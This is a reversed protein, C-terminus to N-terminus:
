AQAHNTCNKSLHVYKRWNYYLRRDSAYERRIQVIFAIIESRDYWFRNLGSWNPLDDLLTADALAVDLGSCPSPMGIALCAMLLDAANVSSSTVFVLATNASGLLMLLEILSFRASFHLSFHGALILSHQRFAMAPVSM